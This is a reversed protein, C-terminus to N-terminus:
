RLRVPLPAKRMVSCNAKWFIWPIGARNLKIFPADSASVPTTFPMRSSKKEQAAKGEILVTADTPAVQEVQDVVSDVAARNGIIREFRREAQDGTPYTLQEM